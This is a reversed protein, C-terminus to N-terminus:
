FSKAADLNKGRPESGGNDWEVIEFLRWDMSEALLKLGADGDFWDQDIVVGILHSMSVARERMIRVQLRLIRNEEWKGLLVQQRPNLPGRRLRLLHLRFPMEWEEGFDHWSGDPLEIATFGDGWWRSANAIAEDLTDFEADPADDGQGQCCWVKYKGSVQSGMM